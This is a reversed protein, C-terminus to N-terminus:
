VTCCKVAEPNRSSGSLFPFLRVSMADTRREDDNTTGTDSGTPRSTPSTPAVNTCRSVGYQRCTPLDPAHECTPPKGNLMLAGYPIAIVRATEDLALHTQRVYPWYAGSQQLLGSALEKHLETRTAEIAALAAQPDRRSEDRSRSSNNCSLLVGLLACGYMM